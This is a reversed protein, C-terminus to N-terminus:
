DKLGFAKRLGQFRKKKGSKGATSEAEVTTTVRAPEPAEEKQPSITQSVTSGWHGPPSAPRGRFARTGLSTKPTMRGTGDSTTPRPLPPPHESSTPEPPPLPWADSTTRSITRRQLLKPSRPPSATREPSRAVVPSRGVVPTPNGSAADVPDVTSTSATVQHGPAGPRGRETHASVTKSSRDKRRGFGSFFSRRKEAKPREPTANTNIVPKSEKPKTEPQDGTRLSKSALANGPTDQTLSTSREPVGPLTQTKAIGNTKVAAASGEAEGELDTSDGDTAKKPLGRVPTLDLPVPEDEDSSDAFRSRFIAGPTEEEEDSDAFRSGFRPPPPPPTEDKIKKSGIGFIGRTPTRSRQRQPEAPARMTTKMASHRRSGPSATSFAPAQSSRTEPLNTRMSRRMSVRTESSSRNRRTRKFSSDSDSEYGVYKQSPIPVPPAAGSALLHGDGAFSLPRQPTTPVRTSVPRSKKQLRGESAPTVPAIDSAKPARPPPDHSAMMRLPAERTDPTRMSTRMRSPTAIPENSADRMSKKMSTKKQSSKTPAAATSTAASALAESPITKKRPTKIVAPAIVVDESKKLASKLPAQAPMGEASLQLDNMVTSAPKEELATPQKDSAVRSVEAKKARSAPPTDVIANISGFGDGELETTESPADSYVSEGSEDGDDPASTVVSPQAEIASSPQGADKQLLPQSSTEAASRSIENSEQRSLQSAAGIAASSPGPLQSGSSDDAATSESVLLPRDALGPDEHPLVAGESQLDNEKEPSGSAWGGPVHVYSDRKAEENDLNPTAPQFEIAPALVTSAPELQEQQAAALQLELTPNLETATGTAPQGNAKIEESQYEEDSHYGTGEVSTVEPPLPENPDVSRSGHPRSDDKTKGERPKAISRVPTFSEEEVASDRQGRISGFSPLAPVPKIVEDADESLPSPKTKDRGFPFWGKRSKEHQPSAIVPSDTGHTEAAHGVITPEVDFSVRSARKKRWNEESAGSPTDSVESPTFGPRNWSQVRGDSPSANRPSPSHKMASKSPSASRAPPQHMVPPELAANSFHASRGPSISDRNRDSGTDLPKLTSTAVGSGQEALEEGERDERVVSPQKALSGSARNMRLDATQTATIAKPKDPPPADAVSGTENKKKQPALPPSESAAKSATSAAKAATGVTSSTSKDEADGTIVQDEGAIEPAVKKKKKVPKTSAM